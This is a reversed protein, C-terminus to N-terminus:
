ETLVEIGSDESLFDRRLYPSIESIQVLTKKELFLGPFRCSDRNLFLLAKYFIIPFKWLIRMSIIKNIEKSLKSVYVLVIESSDLNSFNDSIKVVESIKLNLEGWKKSYRCCVM